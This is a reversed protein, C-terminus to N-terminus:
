REPGSPWLLKKLKTRRKEKNNEGADLERMRQLLWYVGYNRADSNVQLLARAVAPNGKKDIALLIHDHAQHQADLIWALCRGADAPCQPNAHLVHLPTEGDMRAKWHAGHMTLFQILPWNGQRCASHLPLGIEHDDQMFSDNGFHEVLLQLTSLSIIQDDVCAQCFDRRIGRRAPRPEQELLLTVMQDNHQLALAVFLPTVYGHVEKSVFQVCAGDRLANQLSQTNGQFLAREFQLSSEPSPRQALTLPSEIRHPYPQERRTHYSTM